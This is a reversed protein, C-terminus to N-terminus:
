ANNKEAYRDENDSKPIDNTNGNIGEQMTILVKSTIADINIEYFKGNNTIDVSYIPNGYKGELSVSKIDSIKASISSAAISEARIQTIYNSDAFKPEISKGEDASEAEFMNNDSGGKAELDEYDEIAVLGDNHSSIPTSTPQDQYITKSPNMSTAFTNNVVFVGAIEHTSVFHYLIGTALMLFVMSIIASKMAKSKM